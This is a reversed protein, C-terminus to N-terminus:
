IQATYECQKLKLEGSGGPGIRIRIGWPGLELHWGFSCSCAVQTVFHTVCLRGIILFKFAGLGELLLGPHIPKFAMSKHSPKADGSTAFERWQWQLNLIGYVVDSKMNETAHNIEPKREEISISRCNEIQDRDGDFPETPGPIWFQIMYISPTSLSLLEWWRSSSSREVRGRRFTCATRVICM